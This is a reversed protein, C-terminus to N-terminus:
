DGGKLTEILVVGNAGRSGYVASSGDKIVDISKVEIPSLTKLIDPDSIVGDVVILAANSSNISKTGRIIIEENIVQVGAFRGRILEFMDSYRSFSSKDNNFGAVSSTKEEESVYGYGIAYKTQKKGPKLKLNVAVLKIQKTINVDQDYFGNAKVKLKDENECFVSFKGLSDTYFSQKSSKVKIEVGILPISDLTHVFGHVIHEQANIVNLFFFLLFFSLLFDIIRKM